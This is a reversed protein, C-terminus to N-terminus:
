NRAGLWTDLLHPDFYHRKARHPSLAYLRSTRPRCSGHERCSLAAPLVFRSRPARSHYTTPLRGPANARCWRWCRNSPRSSSSMHDCSMRSQSVAGGHHSRQQLHPVEPQSCSDTTRDDAGNAPASAKGFSLSARMRLVHAQDPASRRTPTRVCYPMRWWTLWLMVHGAGTPNPQSGHSGRV